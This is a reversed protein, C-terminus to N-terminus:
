HTETYQVRNMRSFKTNYQVGGAVVPLNPISKIVHSHFPVQALHSAQIEKNGRIPLRLNVVQYRNCQSIRYQVSDASGQPFKITLDNCNNNPYFQRSYTDNSNLQLKFFDQPESQRVDIAHLLSEGIYTASKRQAGLRTTSKRQSGETSSMIIKETHKKAGLHSSGPRKM